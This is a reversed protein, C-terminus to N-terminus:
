ELRMFHLKVIVIADSKHKTIVVADITEPEYIKQWYTKNGRVSLM